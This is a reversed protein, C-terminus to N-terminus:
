GALTKLRRALRTLKQRNLASQSEPPLFDGAPSVPEPKDTAIPLLFAQGLLHLWLRELVYGYVSHACCAQRLRELAEPPVQHLLETRAAFVAGYAFQGLRHQAAQGALVPLGCLNLFHAAVNAGEPLNHLRRYTSNLWQAGPDDFGPPAWTSLSFLEPRIRLGQIFAATERQLIAAPPIDRAIKWRWSLPQIDQWEATHTLLQLFDPSHEFPDGQAFITFGGPPAQTEAIHWLYTEGERGTNPREVIKARKLIAPNEVPAGKNAIVVSFPPPIQTVWDLKESYRAIVLNHM